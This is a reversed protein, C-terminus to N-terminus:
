QKWPSFELVFSLFTCKQTTTGLSFGDTGQENSSPM